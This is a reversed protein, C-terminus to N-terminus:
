SQSKSPALHVLPIDQMTALGPPAAVVRSACNVAIALTSIDGHVGDIRATVPPTGDLEITDRPDEAGVTMELDLTVIEEGDRELWTRERLGAVHGAPVDFFETKLPAEAIVPALSHHLDDAPWDLAEAISLLSERLGIHGMRGTEVREEFEELTIGTGVKAQLQRRRTSVDVIRTVRVKRVDTCMATLVVPLTDMIFGPNIGTGLITVGNSKALSDIEAALEPQRLRPFSLEECTSVINMGAAAIDAFQDRVDALHSGTCHFALDAPGADTDSGPLDSLRASVPIGLPESLGAIEGADRGILNEQIDVCGVIRLGSKQSAIRVVGRGIAGLGYAVVRIEDSTM